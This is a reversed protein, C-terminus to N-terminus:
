PEPTTDSRPDDARVEILPPRTMALRDDGGTSCATPWPGAHPRQGATRASCCWRQSSIEPSRTSRTRRFTPNLFDFPEREALLMQSRSSGGQHPPFMLPFLLVAGLAVSWLIALALGVRKALTLARGQTSRAPGRRDCDDRLAPRDDAPAQHLRRRGGAARRNARRCVTRARCINTTAQM